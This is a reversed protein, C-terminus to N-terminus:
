NSYKADVKNRSGWCDTDTPTSPTLKAELAVGTNSPNPLPEGQHIPIYTTPYPPTCLCVWDGERLLKTRRRHGERKARALLHPRVEERHLRTSPNCTLRSIHVPFISQLSYPLSLPFISLLSKGKDGYDEQGSSGANGTQQANPDGGQQANGQNNNGMSGMAGKAKNLLGDM